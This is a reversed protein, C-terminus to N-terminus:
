EFINTIKLKKIADECISDIPKIHFGLCIRRQGSLIEQITYKVIKLYFESKNFFFEPRVRTDGSKSRKENDRQNQKIIEIKIEYFAIDVFYEASKQAEGSLKSTFYRKVIEQCFYKAITQTEMKSINNLDADVTTSITKKNFLKIQEQKRQQIDMEAKYNNIDDKKNDEFLREQLNKTQSQNIQLQQKCNPGRLPPIMYPSLHQTHDWEHLGSM